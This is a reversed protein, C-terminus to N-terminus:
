PAAHKRVAAEAGDPKVVTAKENVVLKIDARRLKTEGAGFSNQTSELAYRLAERLKEDNDQPAKMMSLADLLAMRLYGQQDQPMWSAVINVDHALGDYVTAKGETYALTVQEGASLARDLNKNEHIVVNSGGLHQASFKESVALVRGTTSGTASTTPKSFRVVEVRLELASLQEVVAREADAGDLPVLSLEGFTSAKKAPAAEHAMLASRPIGAPMLRAGAAAASQALGSVPRFPRQADDTKTTPRWAAPEADAMWFKGTFVVRRTLSGSELKERTNFFGPAAPPRKPPSWELMDHIAEAGRELAADRRTMGLSASSLTPAFM